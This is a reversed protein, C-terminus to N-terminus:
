KFHTRNIGVVEGKDVAQPIDVAYKGFKGKIYIQYQDVSKWYVVKYVVGTKSAFEKGLGFKPSGTNIYMFTGNPLSGYGIQVTDANKIIHTTGNYNVEVTLDEKETGKSTQANLVSFFAVAITTLLLKKM